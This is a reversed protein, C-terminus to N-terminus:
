NGGLKLIASIVSPQEGSDLASNTLQRAAELVYAQGAIRAIAEEVGEM